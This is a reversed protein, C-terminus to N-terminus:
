ARRSLEHPIATPSPRRCVSRRRAAGDVRADLASRRAARAEHAVIADISRTARHAHGPQALEDRGAACARDRAPPDQAARRRRPEAPRPRRPLGARRRDPRAAPDAADAGHAMTTKGSGSEGILGLRQGASCRSRSATSRRARRRAADPLHGPSGRGPPRGSAQPRPTAPATATATANVDRPETAMLRAAAAPERVPGHGGLDLVPRHLHDRDDRDAAGVVVVARAAGRQIEAGLLDDHRAHADNAGLGLAELGIAALMAGRSPASSAPPSSRCCTRCSRRSSLGSPASATRGRSRSM